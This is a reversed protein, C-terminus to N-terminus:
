FLFVNARSKKNQVQAVPQCRTASQRPSPYQRWTHGLSIPLRVQWFRRVYGEIFGPIRQDAMGTLLGM